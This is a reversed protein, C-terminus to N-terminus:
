MMEFTKIFSGYPGLYFEHGKNGMCALGFNRHEEDYVIKYGRREDPFGEIVVWLEVMGRQFLDFDEFSRKVPSILCRRLASAHPNTRSWDGAIESEVIARVEESTMICRIQIFLESLRPDTSSRFNGWKLWSM